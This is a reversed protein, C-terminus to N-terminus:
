AGAGNPRTRALTPVAAGVVPPRFAQARGNATHVFTGASVFSDYRQCVSPPARGREAMRLVHPRTRALTPVVDGVAVPFRGHEAIKLAHSQKPPRPRM